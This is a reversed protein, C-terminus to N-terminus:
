AASAARKASTGRAGAIAEELTERDFPKVVFADMGAALCAERDEKSANATLAIIPVSGAGEMARIRRTAELGDMGPLHLDMLVLDFPAGAQHASAVAKVASVGDGVVAPIHGLKGLTAQALLANIDNDEAILVALARERPLGGDTAPHDAAPAEIEAAALQAALSAARIPKVLYGNFGASRLGALEHRDAPSLLVYLACGEIGVAHALATTEEVGFSRDVFVRSWKREPLLTEAIRPDSALAVHAGWSSLKRELAPGTVPSPSAILINQGALAVPRFPVDAESDAPLEISFDFASGRDGPSTLAIRGGMREVIRSAIALGLGTGGHRRAPSDDGQEFERFIRQQADLGVGPGSDEVIFKIRNEADREVVVIVGGEDTFKVANGALNLLVQRVRGPDATVVSPVDPAVYTAMGIGKAHAKAFLLEVV